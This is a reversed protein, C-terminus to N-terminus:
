KKIIKRSDGTATRLLYMGQPLKQMSIQANNEVKVSLVTHGLTNYITVTTPAEVFINLVDTTPNPYIQMATAAVEDISVKTSEYCGMDVRGNRKRTNGDLDYRYTGNSNTDGADICPSGGVLHWNYNASTLDINGRQTTPYVFVAAGDDSTVVTNTLLINSNAQLEAENWTGMNDSRGIASFAVFCSDGLSHNNNWIISNRIKANASTVIGTDSNSVVDCNIIQNSGKVQLGNGNNNAILCNKINDNQEIYVANAGTNNYVKDNILTAGGTSYIGSGKTGTCTNNRAVCNTLVLNNQILAGAGEDAYGNAFTIGNVTTTNNFNDCYFARRKGKGSLITPNNFGNAQSVSSETGFFGGYIAVGNRMTFANDSTTDGYYTGAKVLIPGKNYEAALAIADHLNPNGNHWSSGNGNAAADIYITDFGTGLYSPHINLVAGQDSSFGNMDDMTYYGDQWGDWGWNFHYRNTRSMYGDCVYAHGYSDGTGSCVVPLGRNLDNLVLSDFIAKTATSGGRSQYYAGFYGFHRLGSVIHETQSGSGTTYNVNQYNMGVSVGCHYCLLSVANIEDQSSNWEVSTPMNAYNYYSSAFNATLTGYVSHVYSYSGFGVNPYQHYRIVQAMALAVCGVVAHGDSNGSYSPCYNDYGYGQGWQTEVLASVDKAPTAAFINNDEGNLAAREQITRKTPTVKQGANMAQRMRDIANSYGDLMQKFNDAVRTSDYKGSFSYGLVPDVLDEASVLMFGDEGINYIYISPTGNGDHLTQYLSLTPNSSIGIAKILYQKAIGQAQQPSLPAAQTAMTGMLLTLALLSLLKKKM